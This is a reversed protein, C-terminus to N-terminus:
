RTTGRGLRCGRRRPSASRTRRWTGRRRRRRPPPCPVTNRVPRSSPKYAFAHLSALVGIRILVTPVGPSNTRSWRFCRPQDCLRNASFTPALRKHTPCNSFPLSDTSRPKTKFASRVSSGHLFREVNKIAPDLDSARNVVPLRVFDRESVLFRPLKARLAERHRKRSLNRCPNRASLRMRSIAPFFTRHTFRPSRTSFGGPVM